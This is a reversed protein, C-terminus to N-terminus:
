FLNSLYGWIQFSLNFASSLKFLIYWQFDAYSFHIKNINKLFDRCSETALISAFKTQSISLALSSCKLILKRFDKELEKWWDWNVYLPLLTVTTSIFEWYITVSCYFAFWQIESKFTKIWPSEHKKLYLIILKSYNM